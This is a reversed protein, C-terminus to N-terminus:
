GAHISANQSLVQGEHQRQGTSDRQQPDTDQLSPHGCGEARPGEDEM